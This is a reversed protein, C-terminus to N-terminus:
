ILTFVLSLIVRLGTDTLRYFPKALFEYVRARNEAGDPSRILFHSFPTVNISAFDLHKVYPRCRSFGAM